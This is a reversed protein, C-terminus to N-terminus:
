PRANLEKRLLETHSPFALDILTRKHIIKIESVEDNPVFKIHGEPIVISLRSFILLNGSTPATIIEMLDYAEPKTELGVEEFVERVTAEQWTEGNEMYGGPFAFMDKQPEINRKQVLVGVRNNDWVRILANVVPQPSCFTDNYCSFCKRPYLTQEPFRASCYSCFTNKNLNM